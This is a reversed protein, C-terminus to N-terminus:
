EHRGGQGMIMMIGMIIKSPPSFTTRGGKAQAANQRELSDSAKSEYEAAGMKIGRAMGARDDHAPGGRRPGEASDERASNKDRRVVNRNLGFRLERM